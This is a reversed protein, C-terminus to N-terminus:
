AVTTHATKAREVTVREVRTVDVEERPLRRDVRYLFVIFRHDEPPIRWGKEANEAKNGTAFAAAEHRRVGNAALEPPYNRDSWGDPKELRGNRAHEVFKAIRMAAYANGDAEYSVLEEHQPQLVTEFGPKTFVISWTVYKLDTGRLDQDSPVDSATSADHRFGSTMWRVGDVVADVTGETVKMPLRMMQDMSDTVASTFTGPQVYGM